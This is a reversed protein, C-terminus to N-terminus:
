MGSYGSKMRSFSFYSTYGDVIASPEDLQDGEFYFVEILCNIIIIHFIAMLQHCSGEAM